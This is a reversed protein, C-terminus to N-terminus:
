RRRENGTRSYYQKKELYMNKDSDSLLIDLPTKGDESYGYGVSCSYPTEDLLQHIRKILEIVEDRPLKRCVIVFEDGGIRYVVQRRRVARLFCDAVASLAKDGAEHGETDNIAKLGNMDISVLASIDEPDDSIDAYYAQRNYLGTLPDKKTVMLISFVYYLFVAIAITSCFLKAYESGILFPLILGSMFALLFFLIPMREATQRSGNKVMLIILYAGYAGVMVYPFLWLPGRVMKGTEVVSFVIGTRISIFNIVAAIIAPIFVYLRQRHIITYIIQAVIFPTASYRVAVLVSRISHYMSNDAVRFEAFVLISLILVEVILAYMRVIMKRELFVTSILSIAFGLLILILEWNSIIYETIM